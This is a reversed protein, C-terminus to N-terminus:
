YGSMAKFHNQRDIGNLIPQITSRQQREFGNEPCLREVRWKGFQQVAEDTPL